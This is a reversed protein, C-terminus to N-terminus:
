SQPALLWLTRAADKIVSLSLSYTYEEVRQSVLETSEVQVGAANLNKYSSGRARADWRLRSYQAALAMIICIFRTEFNRLL